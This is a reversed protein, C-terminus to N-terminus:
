KSYFCDTKALILPQKKNDQKQCKFYVFLNNGSLCHSKEEKQDKLYTTHFDQKSIKNIEKNLEKPLCYKKDLGLGYLGNLATCVQCGKYTATYFSDQINMVNMNRLTELTNEATFHTGYQELKVELLWYILLAMYCIMFHAIIRNKNRNYVPKRQFQNKTDSLM